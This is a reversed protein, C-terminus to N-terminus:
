VVRRLGALAVWASIAVFLLDYGVWGLTGFATLFGLGVLGAIESSVRYQTAIAVSALLTVIISVASTFGDQNASPVQGHLDDLAGLLTASESDHSVIRFSKSRTAVTEGDAIYSTDVVLTGNANRLDFEHMITGAETTTTDFLTYNGSANQLTVSLEYSDVTSSGNGLNFALPVNQAPLREATPDVDLSVERGVYEIVGSVSVELSQADSSLPTYTGLDRTAGTETNVLTLLHRENYALEAPFQGNAGFYDGLVPKYTGNLSREVYLVTTEQPFEGTFDRLEFTTQTFSVSEPLLYLSAQTAISEVYIRRDRYGDAEVSVTLPKNAPLGSLDIEGNTSTRSVSEYQTGNEYYITADLTINDVVESPASENYVTLNSPVSYTANISGTGGYSDTAEATWSHEGGILGSDPISVAVTGNSTATVTDVVDADLAFQVDVSDGDAAFDADSLDVSLESPLTNLASDPQPNNVTPDYHDVTFSYASTVTNGYADTATVTWDHSGEALGSATATHTGNSTAYTTAHVTGGVSWELTVNDGPFDPDSVDIQLEPDSTYVTTADPSGNTVSARDSTQLTVDHASNDLSDFTLVGSADVTAVDLLKGTSVGIAGVTKGSPLGRLTLRSQTGDSGSYSFDVNGDDLGIDSHVTGSDIEGGVTFAPKDDPNVTLPSTSADIATLATTSGEIDSADVTAIAEGSGVMTLNGSATEVRVATDNIWPRSDNLENAGSVVISANSNAALKHDGSVPTYSVAASVLGAAIVIGIVLGIVIKWDVGSRGDATM